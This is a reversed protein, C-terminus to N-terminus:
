LGFLAQQQHRQKRLSQIHHQRSQRHLISRHGHPDGPTARLSGFPARLDLDHGRYDRLVSQYAGTCPEDPNRLGPARVAGGTHADSNGDAWTWLRRGFGRLRAFTVKEDGDRTKEFRAAWSQVVNTLRCPLRSM